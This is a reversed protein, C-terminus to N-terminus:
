LARFLGHTKIKQFFEKKHTNVVSKMKLLSLKKSCGQSLAGGLFSSNVVFWASRRGPPVTWIAFVMLVLVTKVMLKKASYWYPSYDKVFKLRVRWYCENIWVFDQKFMSFFPNALIVIVRGERNHGSQKQTVQKFPHLPLDSTWRHLRFVIGSLTTTSLQAYCDPGHYAM